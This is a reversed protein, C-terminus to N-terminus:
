RRQDTFVDDLALKALLVPEVHEVDAAPVGFADARHAAVRQRGAVNQQDLPLGCLDGGGGSFVLEVIRFAPGRRFPLQREFLIVQM